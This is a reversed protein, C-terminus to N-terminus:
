LIKLKLKTKFMIFQLIKVTLKYFFFKLVLLRSGPTSIHICRVFSGVGAGMRANKSKKTLLANIFIKLWFKPKFFRMKTKCYTKRLFKKFIRIYVLEFKQKKLSIITLYKRTFYTSKLNQWVLKLNKNIRKKFVHSKKLYYDLTLLM